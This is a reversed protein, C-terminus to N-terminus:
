RERILDVVYLVEVFAGDGGLLRGPAEDGLHTGAQGTLDSGAEPKAVVVAVHHSVGRHIGAHRATRLAETAFTGIIYGERHVIGIPHAVPDAVHDIWAVRHHEGRQLLYAIREIGRVVALLGIHLFHGQRQVGM